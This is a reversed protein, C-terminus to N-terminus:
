HTFRRVRPKSTRNKNESENKYPNDSKKLLLRVITDTLMFEKRLRNIIFKNYSTEELREPSNTFLVFTPPRKKAQTIYKLKTSQGRFLPPINEVEINKLWRNLKGTAIHRDWSNFVTFVANMLKDLNTANLASIPIVPCGGLGSLNKEITERARAMQSHKIDKSVMDWKNLAFVIGRGEKMATSAISLDQVNFLETADVVIVVVQAYVISRLSKEVSFKELNNEGSYKKRIGATDVLKIKRGEYEWDIAISDRTIGSESGTILREEGVLRNALTSKGVNPRGIIAIQLIGDIVEADANQLEKTSKDYYPELADYLLNLSDGHEASISVPRSFGLQFFESPFDYDNKSNECKNVVLISSV